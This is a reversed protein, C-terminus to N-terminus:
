RGRVRVGKAAELAAPTARVVVGRPQRVAEVRARVGQAALVRVVANSRRDAVPSWTPGDGPITVILADGAAETWGARYAARAIAVAVRDARPGRLAALAVPTLRVTGDALAEAMPRGDPCGDDDLDAPSTITEPAEPCRDRADPVGDRDDDLDPCGDEDQWGDRDEPEDPCRDVDDPVRDADNDPDPCGDDDAFGDLDEPQNPCRDRADPIGDGDNDPDPCGDLDQFRDRDEPEDPCEDRADPIGDGDNDPDPCGDEDQWGDRDEPEDPCRDVADPVGDGDLDARPARDYRLELAVRWAPAGIARQDGMGLGGALGLTWPAAVRARLGLRAEAPSPGDAGGWGGAVEALALPELRRAVPLRASAALGWALEHGLVMNPNFFRVRASRLRPGANIAAAFRAARWSAIARGEVVVGEEGAFEGDDGTPLTVVLALAAGPGYGRPPPRVAVKAHLRLDGVTVPALAAEAGPEMLDLGALRDGAQFAVIPLGLGVQLWGGWGIAGGLDTSLRLAVPESLEGGRLGARRIVLPRSALTSVLTFSWGLHPALQADEVHLFGGPGPAPALREVTFSPDHPVLSTQASAETAVLLLALAARRV